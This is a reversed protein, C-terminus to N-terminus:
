GDTGAGNVLISLANRGAHLRAVLDQNRLVASGWDLHSILLQTQEPVMLLNEEEQEGLISHQTFPCPFPFSVLPLLNSALILSYVPHLPANITPLLLNYRVRKRCLESKRIWAARKLFSFLRVVVCGVGFDKVRYALM